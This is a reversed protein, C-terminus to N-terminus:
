IQFPQESKIKATEESMKVKAEVHEFHEVNEIEGRQNILIIITERPQVEVRVDNSAAEFSPCNKWNQEESM